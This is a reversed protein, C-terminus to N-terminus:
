ALIEFETIETAVLAAKVKEILDGGPSTFIGNNLIDDMVENVQLETLDEKANDVSIKSTRGGINKFTMELKLSPM